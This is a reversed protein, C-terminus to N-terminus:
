SMVSNTTRPLGSFDEIYIHDRQQYTPLKLYPPIQELDLSNSRLESISADLEGVVQCGPGATKQAGLLFIKGDVTM